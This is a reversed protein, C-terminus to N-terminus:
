DQQRCKGKEGGNVIEQIGGERSDRWWEGVWESAPLFFIQRNRSGTEKEQPNVVLM